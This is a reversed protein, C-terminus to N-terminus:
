AGAAQIPPASGTPGLDVRGSLEASQFSPAEIAKVCTLSRPDFPVPQVSADLDDAEEGGMSWNYERAIAQGPDTSIPCSTQREAFGIGGYSSRHSIRSTTEDNPM